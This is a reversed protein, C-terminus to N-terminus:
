RAIELIARYDLETFVPAAPANEVWLSCPDGIPGETPDRGTFAQSSAPERGDLATRVLLEVLEDM